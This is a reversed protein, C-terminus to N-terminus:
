IGPRSPHRNERFSCKVRFTDSYNEKSATRRCSNHVLNKPLKSYWKTPDAEVTTKIIKDIADALKGLEPTLVLDLSTREGGDYSPWPSFPTRLTAEKSLTILVPKDNRTIPAIRSKSDLTGIEFNGEAIFNDITAM